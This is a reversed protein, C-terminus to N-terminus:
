FDIDSFVEPINLGLISFGWFVSRGEEDQLFIPNRIFAGYGGQRMVFPGAIVPEGTDRALRAEEARDTTAFLDLMGAENGQLPYIYRVVGKPALQVSNIARGRNREMIRRSINEFNRVERKDAKLITSWVETEHVYRAISEKLKYNALNRFREEVRQRHFHFLFSNFIFVALIVLVASALIIRLAASFFLYKHKM